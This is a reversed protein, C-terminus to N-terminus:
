EKIGVLQLSMNRRVPNYPVSLSFNDPISVYYIDNPFGEINWAWFFPKLQSIYEDWIPKFNNRVFADTLNQFSVSINHEIYRINAGLLHGAKSRASEAHITEPGPDFSGLVYRPIELKSGVFLVALEPAIATTVIKLRWYQKTALIFTKLIAKNTTPEFMDLADSWDSGNDSHQLTIEAEATGFNHGIIGICDAAVPEALTATIYLTGEAEAKWFTYPRRDIINAIDFDEATNTAELTGADELINEALIIPKSM